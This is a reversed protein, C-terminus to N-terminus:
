NRLIFDRATFHAFAPSLGYIFHTKLRLRFNNKRVANHIEKAFIIKGNFQVVFTTVHPAWIKCDM